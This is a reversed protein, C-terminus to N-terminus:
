PQDNIIAESVIQVIQDRIAADEVYRSRNNQLPRINILSDFEIFDPSGFQDPYLNIGWLDEQRSGNDLMFQEIDAHLEADVVILKQLIDVDAKVMNGFMKKAMEKLETLTINGGQRM